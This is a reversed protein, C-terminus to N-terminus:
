RTTLGMDAAVQKVLPSAARLHDLRGAATSTDFSGARALAGEMQAHAADFLARGRKWDMFSMGPLVQLNLLVDDGVDIENLLRRANVVMSRQLISFATPLRPKGKKPKSLVSRITQARTPLDQYKGRTRWAKDPMFNLIVNPGPKLARMADIPVNDILSGDILVEGDDLIMPPFIGPIASSARIAQRLPGTRIVCIDNYTLSTAVAYYNLPLDEIDQTGYHHLFAADLAHHDLLGHRPLTYRSMAKSRLFIDECKDMVDDPSLGMALAGAMASGVSTGGVYDFRYGHQQLLHIAGLHATGFSGGGCMVLGMAEGRMFRGIRAFDEPQDLALHHHLGVERGELWKVTRARSDSASDRYLVLQVNAAMKAHYVQRELASPGEMPNFYAGKPAAIVITDSNNMIARRWVPDADPDTCILVVTDHMAELSRVWRRTADADDHLEAPRAHEDVVKWNPADAFAARLGDLFRPDLRANAGPLVACVNGAVPRLVPSAAVNRALRASLAALIGNALDPSKASLTDYAERSLSLASSDRAAIVNATRTGGAFFALEGVPEGPSIEAIASEGVFVTFRGSVAIYLCDAKDGQQILAEGRPVHLLDALEMVDQLTNPHLSAFGDIARLMGLFDDKDEVDKM